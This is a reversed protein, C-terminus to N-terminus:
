RSSASAKGGPVTVRVARTAANGAADVARVSVLHPGPGLDKLLTHFALRPADSMGGDPALSHWAGDDTSLDLRQLWGEGDAAAGSVTIGGSEAKAELASVQPPTNDISFPESVADGTLAEGVANGEADSATVKVRYRGDALTNTNWTLVTVELDKAIEIWDGAPEARVAVKYRLLDGNPDVGRWSLTRLGRAWLPMEHMPRSGGITASYEVKQGGALTQTISESRQSMDGERFSTGQPAVTLEDIRPAQNTERWSVNVEDVRADASSMRVKWQLYRGPPSAIAGEEGVAQWRSWTTDPLDGNGTRTSFTTRGSGVARVRGFRAFRRADQIGSLLEGGEGPGPGLRWVAVPNSCVAYLVGAAGPVLATVQGQSPALQVSAGNAREIRYVGARNGTSAALAGNAFALSFVLPQPATWWASGEGEPTVRYLVARGGPAPSKAPQPGDDGGPEDTAASITLGAAWLLGDPGIALARIEDEGADFLTRSTGDARVQYIRGRSDGGAYVGGKGDPVLSVLNSEETDLLVSSKGGAIRLVRGLTGTAAYWAGKGASALGWIYREGTTALRTTDGAAGIRYILGRPGTGAVAGDGDQALSLVQGSGLRAWVKWGSKESWRLIRGHDGGVALSGDRLLVACWALGLSDTAFSETRPGARLVGDADVVVGRAESKAYDAPANSTWWQTDAAVARGVGAVAPLLATMVVVHWLIHRSGAGGGSRRM